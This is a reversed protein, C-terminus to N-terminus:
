DCLVRKVQLTTKAFNLLLGHRRGAARLQSKVVAFHIDDLEKVVKLDVVIESEVFLDMRHKGVKEGEFLVDIEIQQGAKLGRKHLAIFLANEYISEIFGPGLARHVEIAAGIIEGTLEEHELKKKGNRAEDMGPKKILTGTNM